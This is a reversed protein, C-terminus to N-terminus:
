RRSRRWADSARGGRAASRRRGVAYRAVDSAWDRDTRLVLHGAGARRVARRTRERQAAAAEAYRARLRPATHVERARGTEPDVLTLLGVDPLELERPDVVEVALVDHRAALRRLPAEWRPVDDGTDDLFDSVIVRLGPRRHERALAALAGALDLGADAGPATRPTESVTRLLGRAAARGPRAPLRRLSGSQLIRVGLRNGPRDTLFGVAAVVAAALDRKEWLATGFDMSASQDVLVWSELEHEALPSRVHPEQTRATVNWDMRRVDDQGPRYARVDDPESGPGPRLGAQEGQLLGDLRRRVTIELRRLLRGADAPAAPTGPTSM